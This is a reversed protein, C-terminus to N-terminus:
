PKALYARVQPENLLVMVAEAICGNLDQVVNGSSHKVLKRVTEGGGLTAEFELQSNWFFAIYTSELRTVKLAISKPSGSRPTAAKQLERTAQQVMLETITHYDSALKTGMYSYVIAEGTSPQANSITAPGALDISAILGARLPYEQPTWPRTGCAQLLLISAVALTRLFLTM